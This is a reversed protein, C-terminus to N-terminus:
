LPIPVMVLSLFTRTFPLSSSSVFFIIKAPPEFTLLILTGPISDDRTIVLSSIKSIFSTGSFRTIIPPPTTPISSPCAKMVNPEFTVTISIISRMTGAISASTELFRRRMKSRLPMVIRVSVLNSSIMSSFPLSRILTSPFSSIRASLARSEIPRTGSKSPIPSTSNSSSRPRILTLSYM